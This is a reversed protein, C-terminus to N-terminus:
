IGEASGVVECLASESSAPAAPFQNAKSRLKRESFRPYQSVFRQVARRVDRSVRSMVWGDFCPECCRGDEINHSRCCGCSQGCCGWHDERSWRGLSNDEHALVFALVIREELVRSRIHHYSAAAM